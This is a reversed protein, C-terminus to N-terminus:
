QLSLETKYTGVNEPNPEGTVTYYTHDWKIPRPFKALSYTKAPISKVYDLPLDCSKLIETVATRIDQSSLSIHYLQFVSSYSLLIVYFYKSIIIFGYCLQM